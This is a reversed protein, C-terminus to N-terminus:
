EKKFKLEINSEKNEVSFLEFKTDDGFLQNLNVELAPKKEGEANFSTLMEPGLLILSEHDVDYSDLFNELNTRSRCSSFLITPFEIFRDEEILSTLQNVEHNKLFSELWIINIKKSDYSKILGDKAKVQELSNAFFALEEVPKLFKKDVEEFYNMRKHHYLAQLEIMQKYNLGHEVKIKSFDLYLISDSKYCHGYTSFNAWTPIEPLFFKEVGSSYYAESVEKKEPSSSCGVLTM